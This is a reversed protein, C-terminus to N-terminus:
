KPSDLQTRQQIEGLYSEHRKQECPFMSVTFCSVTGFDDLSRTSSRGRTGGSEEVCGPLCFIAGGNARLSFAFPLVEKRCNLLMRCGPWFLMPPFFSRHSTTKWATTSRHWHVSMVERGRADEVFVLVFENYSSCTFALYAVMSRLLTRVM